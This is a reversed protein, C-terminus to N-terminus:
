SVSEAGGEGSPLLGELVGDAGRLPVQPGKRLAEVGGEIAPAAPLGIKDLPADLRPLPLDGPKEGCERLM